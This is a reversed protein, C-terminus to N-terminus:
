KMMGKEFKVYDGWAEAATPHSIESVLCGALAARQFAIRCKM